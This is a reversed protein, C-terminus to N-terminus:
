LLNHLFDVTDDHIKEEEVNILKRKLLKNLNIFAFAFLFGFLINLITVFVILFFMSILIKKKNGVFINM